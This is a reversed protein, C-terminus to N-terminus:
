RWCFFHFLLSALSYVLRPTQKICFLLFPWRKTQPELLGVSKFVLATKCQTISNYQIGKQTINIINKM